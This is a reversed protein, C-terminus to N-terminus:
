GFIEDGIESFDVRVLRFNWRRKRFFGGEGASFDLEMKHFYLGRLTFFRAVNQSIDGVEPFFYGEHRLDRRRFNFFEDVKLVYSVRM